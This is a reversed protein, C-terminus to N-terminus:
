YNLFPNLAYGLAEGGFPLHLHLHSLFVLPFFTDTGKGVPCSPHYPTIPTEGVEAGIPM